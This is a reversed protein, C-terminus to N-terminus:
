DIKMFIWPCGPSMEPVFEPLINQYKKRKRKRYYDKKLLEYNMYAFTFNHDACFQLIAAKFSGTYRVKDNMYHFFLQKFHWELYEEFIAQNCPSVWLNGRINVDDNFPLKLSIYDPGTDLLPPQDKPRRELLPKLLKGVLNTKSALDSQLECLLYEQLYPKLKLTITPRDSDNM